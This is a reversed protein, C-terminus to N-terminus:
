LLLLKSRPRNRISKENRYFIWKKNIQQIALNRIKETNDRNKTLSIVEDFYKNAKEMNRIRRNIEGMLYLATYFYESPIQGKDFAEEYYKM